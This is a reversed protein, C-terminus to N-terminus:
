LADDSIQFEDMLIRDRAQRHSVRGNCTDGAPVHRQVLGALRPLLDDGHLELLLPRAAEPGHRLVSVGVHDTIKTTEGSTMM